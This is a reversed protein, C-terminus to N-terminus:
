WWVYGHNRRAVSQFRWECHSRWKRCLRKMHYFYGSGFGGNGDFSEAENGGGRKQLINIELVQRWGRISSDKVLWCTM